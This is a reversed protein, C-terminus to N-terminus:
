AQIPGDGAAQCNGLVSSSSSCCRHRHSAKAATAPAQMPLQGAVVHRAVVGAQGTGELLLGHLRPRMVYHWAAAAVKAATSAGAHSANV